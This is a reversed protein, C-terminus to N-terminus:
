NPQKLAEVVKIAQISVDYEHVDQLTIFLVQEKVINVTITLGIPLALMISGTTENQIAFLINYQYTTKHAEQKSWFIWADGEQTSLNTFASTIAATIQQTQGPSLVIGVVDKLIATVKDVMVSVQADSQQITQNVTGVIAMEPHHKVIDIAKAFDFKLTQSDIADQFVQSMEIAQGIYQPSIAYIEKFNLTDDETKALLVVSRYSM